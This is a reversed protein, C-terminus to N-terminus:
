FHVLEIQHDRLWAKLRPDCLGALERVRDLNYSSKQYLELDCYGPHVMFELDQDPHAKLVEIFHEPTANEGNYTEIWQYACSRRLPLQVERALARTVALIEETNHEPGIGGVKIMTLTVGDHCGQHSDLHTPRRGTLEIFREIQARFEQEVERPDVHVKFYQTNKMFTGDAQVLSPVTTLPSGCTLTLHVGAGLTPAAKLQRAAEEAQPMHTMMTTSSVIGRRHGELIGETVGRTYGFDDANVIIKM